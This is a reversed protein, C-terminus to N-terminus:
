CKGQNATSRGGARDSSSTRTSHARGSYAYYLYYLYHIYHFINVGCNRLPSHPTPLTPPRHLFKLSATAKKKRQRSKKGGGAICKCQHANFYVVFSSVEEAGGFSFFKIDPQERFRSLSPLLFFSLLASPLFPSPISPTSPISSIFPLIMVPCTPELLYNSVKVEEFSDEGRNFKAKRQRVSPRV